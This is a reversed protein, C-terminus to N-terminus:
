ARDLVFQAPQLYGNRRAAEAKERYKLGGRFLPIGRELIPLANRGPLDRNM